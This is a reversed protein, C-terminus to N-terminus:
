AKPVFHVWVGLTETLTFLGNYTGEIQHCFGRCVSAAVKFQNFRRVYKVYSTLFECLRCFSFSLGSLRPRVNLSIHFTQLREQMQAWMGWFVSTFNIKSSLFARFSAADPSTAWFLLAKWLHCKPLLLFKNATRFKNQDIFNSISLLYAVFSIMFHWKITMHFPCFNISNLDPWM